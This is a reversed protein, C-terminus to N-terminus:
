DQPVRPREARRALAGRVFNVVLLAPLIFAQFFMWYSEGQFIFALYIGYGLFGVGALASVARAGASQEFGKSAAIALMAVGSVCLLVVYWSFTPDLGFDINM